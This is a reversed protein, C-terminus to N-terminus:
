KGKKPKIMKLNKGQKPTMGAKTTMSDPMKPKMKKMPFGSKKMM